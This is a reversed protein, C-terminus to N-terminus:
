RRANNVCRFHHHFLSFSKDSIDSCWDCDESIFSHIHPRGECCCQFWHLSWRERFLPPLPLLCGEWFTGEVRCFHLTTANMLSESWKCLYSYLGSPRANLMLLRTRLATLSALPADQFASIPFSVVASPSPLLDRPISVTLISVEARSISVVLPTKYKKREYNKRSSLRLRRHGRGMVLFLITFFNSMCFFVIYGNKQIIWSGTWNRCSNALM